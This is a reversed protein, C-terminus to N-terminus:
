SIMKSGRVREIVVETIIAIVLYVVSFMAFFATYIEGWGDGRGGILFWIYAATAFSIAISILFGKKWGLFAAFLFPLSVFIFPQIFRSISFNKIMGDELLFIGIISLIFFGIFINSKM